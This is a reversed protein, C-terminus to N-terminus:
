GATRDHQGRADLAPPNEQRDFVRAYARIQNPYDNSEIKWLDYVVKEGKQLQQSPKTGTIYLTQKPGSKELDMAAM